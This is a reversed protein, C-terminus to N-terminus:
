GYQVKCSIDRLFSLELSFKAPETMAQLKNYCAYDGCFSQLYMM